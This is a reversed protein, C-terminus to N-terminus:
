YMGEIGGALKATYCQVQFALKEIYLVAYSHIPGPFLWVLAGGM